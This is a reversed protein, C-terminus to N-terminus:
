RDGGTDLLGQGEGYGDEERKKGPSQPAGQAGGPQESEAVPRKEQLPQLKPQIQGPPQTQM